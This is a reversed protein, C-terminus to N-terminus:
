TNFVFYKRHQPLSDKWKNLASDLETVIRSEWEEGIIGSLTKSKKSSYLTRSMFGIIESLKLYYTLAV